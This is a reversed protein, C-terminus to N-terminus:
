VCGCEKVIIDDIVTFTLNNEDDLHTYFYKEFAVPACKNRMNSYRGKLQNKIHSWHNHLKHNRPCRGTCLYAEITEHQEHIGEVHMNVETLPIEVRNRCCSGPACTDRTSRKKRQVQITKEYTIIDLSAKTLPTNSHTLIQSINHTSCEVEIGHNMGVEDVWSQAIETVDINIWDTRVLSIVKSAVLRRMNGPLTQYVLLM